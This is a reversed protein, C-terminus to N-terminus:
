IIEPLYNIAIIFLIFISLYAKLDIKKCDTFVPVIFKASNIM